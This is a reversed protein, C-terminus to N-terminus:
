STSIPVTITSAGADTKLVTWPTSDQQFTDFVLPVTGFIKTTIMHPKASSHEVQVRLATQDRMHPFFAILQDGARVNTSTCVQQAQSAVKVADMRTFQYSVTARSSAPVSQLLNWRTVAWAEKQLHLTQASVFQIDGSLMTQPAVKPLPDVPLPDVVYLRFPAGGLRNSTESRVVHM